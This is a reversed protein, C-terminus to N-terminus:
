RCSASCKDRRRWCDTPLSSRSVGCRGRRKDGVQRRRNRAGTEIAAQEIQFGREVAPRRGMRSRGGIERRKCHDHLRLSRREVERRGLRLPIDDSCGVLGHRQLGRYEFEFIRQDRMAEMHDACRHRAVFQGLRQDRDCFRRVANGKIRRGRRHERIASIDGVYMAAVRGHRAFCEVRKSREDRVHVARAFDVTKESREVPAEDAGRGAAIKQARRGNQGSTAVQM